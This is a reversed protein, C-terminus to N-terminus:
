QDPFLTEFDRRARGLDEIHGIDMWYERVIYPVATMGRGCLDSFLEPMDYHTDLPILKLAEPSLVYVGGSILHHQIPKEKIGTIRLQDIDIVGYPVQTEYSRVGMTAVADHEEHFDIMSPVNLKTLIDGNMVVIPLEPMEPLLALPGATGLPTDERLYRIDASFKSGDGFHSMVMEAKYSVSVFFRSFGMKKFNDLIVELLPRRGLSLMPKPCDDTLPRLRVGQGGAMLVVWNDHPVPQKFEELSRLAVVRGDNDLVPLDRLMKSQMLDLAAQPDADIGIVVPHRNMVDTVPSSISCGRLLGRRVDGDSVTGLLRRNEDVVLAIKGRAADIIRLAIEVRDDARVLNNLSKQISISL